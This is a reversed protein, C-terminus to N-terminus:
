WSRVADEGGGGGFLGVLDAVLPAIGFGSKLVTTVVSGVKSAASEQATSAARQSATSVVTGADAEAATSLGRPSRGSSKM